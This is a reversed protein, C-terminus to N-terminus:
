HTAVSSTSCVITLLARFLLLAFSVQCLFVSENAGMGLKHEEKFFAEYCGKANADSGLRRDELSPSSPRSTVDNAVALLQFHNALPSFRPLSRSNEDPSNFLRRCYPCVGVSEVLPPPTPPHPVFRGTSAITLAHSTPNYFFSRTRCKRGILSAGDSISRVHGGPSVASGVDQFVIGKPRRLPMAPEIGVASFLGMRVAGNLRIHLSDSRRYSPPLHLAYPDFPGNANSATVAIWVVLEPGFFTVSEPKPAFGVSSRALFIGFNFCSCHCM